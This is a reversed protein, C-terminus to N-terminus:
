VRVRSLSAAVKSILEELTTQPKYLYEVIGLQDQVQQTLHLDTVPIVTHLIIPIQQLDSHSRLEYLFEVGNHKALQLELVILDPHKTDIYSIAGQADSECDVKLKTLEFAKAYTSALLKDPEILLIRQQKKM